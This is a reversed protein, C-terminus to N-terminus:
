VTKLSRSRQYKDILCSVIMFLAFSINVGGVCLWTIQADRNTVFLALVLVGLGPGAINYGWAVLIVLLDVPMEQRVPEGLSMSLNRELFYLSERTTLNQGWITKLTVDRFASTNLLDPSNFLTRKFRFHLIVIPTLVILAMLMFWASYVIAGLAGPEAALEALKEANLTIAAGIM